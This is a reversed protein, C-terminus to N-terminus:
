KNEHRSLIILQHKARSMATYLGKTNWRSDTSDVDYLIVVKAEMGKFKMYTFYAVEQAHLSFKELNGLIRFAGLECVDDGFTTKASHAGLIVIDKLPIKEEETLRTLEAELHTRCHGTFTRVEVGDPSDEPVTMAHDCSSNIAAVIKKTNRCNQNLEIPPYGFDPINSEETFINQHPDHFVYFWGDPKLFEQICAWAEKTFDQGEDVIVADYQFRRMACYDTLTQPLVERYFKAAYDRSTQALNQIQRLREEPVGGERLLEIAFEFLAIVKVGDFKQTARILHRALLKNYCLLLVNKNQHWLEKTKALAMVTKGSGACGRIQLRKFNKLAALIVELNRTLREFRAEDSAIIKQGVHSEKAIPNLVFMMEEVSIERAVAPPSKAATLVRDVFNEPNRKLDSKGLTIERAEQPLADLKYLAPFCVAHALKCKFACKFVGRLLEQLGFKNHIAQRVPDIKQGGQYWDGNQYTISGGKVELVLIGKTPHYLLFDIEADRKEKAGSYKSCQFVFSHFITWEDSLGDRLCKFVVRESEPVDERTIEAPIMKAM